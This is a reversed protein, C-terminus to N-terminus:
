EVFVEENQRVGNEYICVIQSGDSVKVRCGKRSLMEAIDVAICSKCSAAELLYGEYEYWRLISFVRM